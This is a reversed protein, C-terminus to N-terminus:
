TRIELRGNQGVGAHEGTSSLHSHATSKRGDVSHVPVDVANGALVRHDRSPVTAAATGSIQLLAASSSSSSDVISQCSGT